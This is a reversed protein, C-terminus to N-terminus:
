AYVVSPKIWKLSIKNPKFNAQFRIYVPRAACFNVNESCVLSSAINQKIDYLTSLMLDVDHLRSMNSLNSNM